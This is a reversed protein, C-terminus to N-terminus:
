RRSLFARFCQRSRSHRAPYEGHNEDAGRNGKGVGLRKGGKLLALIFAESLDPVVLLAM